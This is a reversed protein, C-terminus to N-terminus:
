KKNEDWVYFIYNINYISKSYKINSKYIIKHSKAIQRLITILNNYSMNQKLYKHKSKYYHKRCIEIFPEIKQFLNGKKFSENNFIITGDKTDCISSLFNIFVSLEVNSKFLQSSM